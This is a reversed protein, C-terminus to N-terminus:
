LYKSEAELSGGVLRLRNNQALNDCKKGFKSKQACKAM